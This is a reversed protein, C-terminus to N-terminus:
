RGPWRGNRWLYWEMGLFLLALLLFYGTLDSRRTKLVAAAETRKEGEGALIRPKLDVEGAPINAALVGHEEGDAWRFIGPRSARLVVHRGRHEVTLANARAGERDLVRFLRSAPLVAPEGITLNYAMPDTLQPLCYALLNQFFVPWAGTVGLESTLLSFGLVVRLREKEEWAVAVPRGDVQALVQVGSEERGEVILSQGEGITAEGWDVFRLLPHPSGTGELRGAVRQGPRVPAGPPATLFALLDTELEAPVPVRDAIVLDWGKGTFQAEPLAPIETVEVGPRRLAARLFPNGPGALLVRATRPPNVALYAQSGPSFVIGGEAAALVAEYGGPALPEPLTLRQYSTGPAAPWSEEALLRGDKKIQLTVAKAVPWGNVIRAQLIDPGAVRLGTVALNYGGAAIQRIRLADGFVQRLRRGELDLGGDTILVAEWSRETQVRWLELDSAVAEEVFGEYRPRERQVEQLLRYWDGAEGLLEAGAACLFVAGPTGPPLAAVEEKLLSLAQDWRSLGGPGDEAAMGASADLLFLIGPPEMEQQQLVPGALAFIVATVTAIQLFLLLLPFSRLRRGGSIQRARQWLYISSVPHRSFRVRLFYCIIVPILLFFLWFAAPVEWSM